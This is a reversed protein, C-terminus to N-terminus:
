RARLALLFLLLGTAGLVTRVAHLRGWRRLLGLTEGEALPEASLLRDNIPRIVILTLPIAAGIVLGGALWTLRTSLWAAAIGSLLAIAAFSAQWPAARQYSPRFQARASTAGSDLRAPHEVLVIYVAWATFASGSVTAAAAALGLGSM